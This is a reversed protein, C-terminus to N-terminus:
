AEACVLIVKGVARAQLIMEQARRAEALPFEAAILPKLRGEALYSLLVPLDEGLYSPNKKNYPAVNFLLAKKGNPLLNWVPLRIFGTLNELAGVQGQVAGYASTSVLTGGPRLAQFSRKLHNGGIHDVVLDVGDGTLRAIREVFDETRYDIPVAGLSEVAKHKAASATGFMELGMLQGLQLMATGAGGAAGHVLVRQGPSLKAIRRIVQYGTLHNMTLCVVQSPDLGEPVPVLKDFPVTAYESYGGFQILAAVTQGVQLATSGPGLVEVVGVLDYGPTFPPKPSGPVKGSQWMLDGFAAGARLVRVRAEGPGPERLEDAQIELVEPGGRRAAVIRTYQEPM